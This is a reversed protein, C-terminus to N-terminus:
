PELSRDGLEQSAHKAEKEYKGCPRRAYPYEGACCWPVGYGEMDSLHKCSECPRMPHVPKPKKM